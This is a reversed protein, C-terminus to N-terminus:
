IHVKEAFLVYFIYQFYILNKREKREKETWDDKLEITFFYSTMILLGSPRRSSVSRSQVCSSPMEIKSQSGPGKTTIKSGSLWDSHLLPKESMNDQTTSGKQVHMTRKDARISTIIRRQFWWPIQCTNHCRKRTLFTHTVKYKLNEKEKVSVHIKINGLIDWLYHLPVQSHSQDTCLFKESSISIFPFSTDKETRMMSKVQRMM